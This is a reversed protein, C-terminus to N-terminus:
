LNARMFDLLMHANRRSSFRLEADQRARAGFEALQGHNRIAHELRETLAPLDDSPVLWGDIGDRVMEPLAGVRTALVPKGSAKAESVVWPTMDARTPLVFLDAQQMLAVLRPDNPKMDSHLRVNGPVRIAQDCVVDLTWGRAKTEAAWRLLLPGGKRDFDGGVFLMRVEAGPAADVAPRWRSLDVGPWLVLTRERPVRYDNVVTERVLESMCVVGRAAAYTRRHAADRLFWYRSGKQSSLGQATRYQELFAPTSDVSLFTPTRRMYPVLLHAMRQTHLFAVDFAGEKAAANLGRRASLALVLAHADRLRPIHDIIGNGSASIPIWRADLGAEDALAARMNAMLARHGLHDEIAFAVRM